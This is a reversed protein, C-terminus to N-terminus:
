GQEIVRVVLHLRKGGSAEPVERPYVPLEVFITYDECEAVHADPRM